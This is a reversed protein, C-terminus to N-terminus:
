IFKFLCTMDTKYYPRPLTLLLRLFLCAFPATTTRNLPQGSLERTSSVFLFCLVQDVEAVGSEIIERLVAERDGIRPERREKEGKLAM